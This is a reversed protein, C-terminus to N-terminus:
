FIVFLRSPEVNIEIKSILNDALTCVATIICDNREGGITRALHVETSWTHNSVQETIYRVDYTNLLAYDTFLVLISDCNEFVTNSFTLTM